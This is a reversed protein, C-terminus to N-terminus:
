YQIRSHKFIFMIIVFKGGNVMYIKASGVLCKLCPETLYYSVVLSVPILIKLLHGETEACLSLCRCLVCGEKRIYLMCGRRGTSTSIVNSEKMAYIIIM